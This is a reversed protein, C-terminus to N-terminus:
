AEIRAPTDEPLLLNSVERVGDIRRVRRELERIQEPDELTGGLVIVGDEARLNVRDLPIATGRFAESRVKNALDVDNTPPSEDGGLHTLRQAAGHAESQAMRTARELRKRGRVGLGVLKDAVLKARRRATATDFFLLAAGLSALTVGAGLAVSSKRVGTPAMMRDMGGLTTWGISRAIRRRM